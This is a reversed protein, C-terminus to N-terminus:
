LGLLTLKEGEDEPGRKKRNNNNYNFGPINHKAPTLYLM